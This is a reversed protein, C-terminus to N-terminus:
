PLTRIFHQRPQCPTDPVQNTYRRDLPDFAMQTHSWNFLRASDGTGVVLVAHLSYYMRFFDGDDQAEM